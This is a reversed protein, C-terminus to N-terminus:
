GWTRLMVHSFHKISIEDILDLKWSNSRTAKMGILRIFFISIYRDLNELMKNYMINVKYRCVIDYM